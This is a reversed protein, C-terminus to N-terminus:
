YLFKDRHVAVKFKAMQKHAQIQPTFDARTWNLVCIDYELLLCSFLWWKEECIIVIQKRPSWM